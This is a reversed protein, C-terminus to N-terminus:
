PALPSAARPGPCSYMACSGRGGTGATAVATRGELLHWREQPLVVGLINCAALGGM